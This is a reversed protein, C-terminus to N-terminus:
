NPLDLRYEIGGTGHVNDHGRVIIFGTEPPISVEGLSRTFPQEDVHPHLLVRTSLVTGDPAVIEFRDAYHEWGTDDHRMTVTMDWGRDHRAAAVRLIETEGAWGPTVATTTLLGLGAFILTRVQM